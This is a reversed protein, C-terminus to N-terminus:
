FYCCAHIVSEFQSYVFASVYQLLCVKNVASSQTNINDVAATDLKMQKIVESGPRPEHLIEVIDCDSDTSM